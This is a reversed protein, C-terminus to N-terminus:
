NDRSKNVLAGPVPDDESKGMPPNVLTFDDFSRFEIDTRAYEKGEQELFIVVMTLDTDNKDTYWEINAIYTDESYSIIGYDYLM